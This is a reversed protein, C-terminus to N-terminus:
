DGCSRIGLGVGRRESGLHVKCRVLHGLVGMYSESSAKLSSVGRVVVRSKCRNGRVYTGLRETGRVGGDIARRETHRM